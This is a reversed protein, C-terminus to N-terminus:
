AARGHCRGPLCARDCAKGGVVCRLPRHGGPNLNGGVRAVQSGQLLDRRIGRDLEFGLTLECAKHQVGRQAFSAFPQVFHLGLGQQLGVAYGDDAGLRGVIHLLRLPHCQVDAKRHRQLDNRRLDHVLGIDAAHNQVERRRFCKVSSGNAHQLLNRLQRRTRLHVPEGNLSHHAAGIRALQDDPQGGVRHEARHNQAAAAAGFHLQFLLV